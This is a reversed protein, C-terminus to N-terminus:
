KQASQARQIDGLIAARLDRATGPPTPVDKRPNMSIAEVPCLYACAGCGICHGENVFATGADIITIANLQCHEVCTECGDCQDDDVKALYGSTAAWVPSGSEKIKKLLDCHCSCCNCLYELFASTNSSLHVLGKEECAKLIEHAEDKSILRTIGRESTYLAGPGFNMCCERPADCTEEDLLYAQHRCYCHGVAIDDASEIYRSLQDFTYVQQGAQITKEVPIIRTFPTIGKVAAIMETVAPSAIELYIKFLRALRRDRMTDTGRMFQFEFIGPMIPLLRYLVVGDKKRTLVTGKDAMSELLPLIEEVPKSLKEALDRAPLAGPPMRSAIEAEEESFLEEFLAKMEPIPMAPMVGGLANLSNCLEILLTKEM